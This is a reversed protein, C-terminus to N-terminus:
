LEEQPSPPTIIFMQKCKITSFLFFISKLSLVYLSLSLSSVSIQATLTNCTNIIINQLMNCTPVFIEDVRVYLTLVYQAQWVISDVTM